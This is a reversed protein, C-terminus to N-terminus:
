ETRQTQSVHFFTQKDFHKIKPLLGTKSHLRSTMSLFFLLACRMAVGGSSFRAVFHPSSRVRRQQSILCVSVSVCMVTSRERAAAFHQTNCVSLHSAYSSTRHLPLRAPRSVLPLRRQSPRGTTAMSGDGEAAAGRRGREVRSCVSLAGAQVSWM